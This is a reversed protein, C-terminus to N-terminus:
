ALLDTNVSLKQPYYEGSERDFHWLTVSLAMSLAADIAAVLAVSLGTVYIHLEQGWLNGEKVGFVEQLKKFAAERLENVQLPNLTEEFVYDEVNPIEHRGKCLGLKM